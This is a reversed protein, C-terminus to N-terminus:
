AQDWVGQNQGDTTQYVLTVRGIRLFDVERV